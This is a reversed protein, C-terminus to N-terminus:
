LGVLPPRVLLFFALAFGAVIAALLVALPLVTTAGALVLGGLQVFAAGAMMQMCGLFGSATGAALPRASIAGAIANPLMVGNGFGIVLQPAFIIAPGWWPALGALATSATAGIAELLLGWWIMTDVGYRESLRSTLFNGAMYGLSSAAFWIGFEASSRGMLTVVAHPGGGLFAFFTGSGFAACLVYGHFRPHRALARVDFLFGRSPAIGADRARTEPLAKVAWLLVALSVAAVFLFISQWGFATELIGGILPGFTPAVVMATAILGLTAAARDREFLDRVIARAVVLGSAAGIAQVVRVVILGAVDAVALAALSMVATLALGGLLVPRRGFRDSLPGALLQASALGVLYLSVALQVTDADTALAAALGPLAPVLINLTTPGIATVCILLGLLPWRADPQRAALARLPPDDGEMRPESMRAAGHPAPTRFTNLSEVADHPM